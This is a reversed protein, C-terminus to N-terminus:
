PLLTLLSTHPNRGELRGGIENLITKLIRRAGMWKPMWEDVMWWGGMWGSDILAHM